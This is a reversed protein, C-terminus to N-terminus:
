SNSRGSLGTGSDCLLKLSQLDSHLCLIVLINYQITNYPAKSKLIAAYYLISYCLVTRSLLTYLVYMTQLRYDITHLVYYRTYLFLTYPISYITHLVYYYLVTSYSMIHYPITYYLM